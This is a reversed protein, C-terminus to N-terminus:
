LASRVSGGDVLITTGTMYSARESALFAVVDGIESPDAMRRLPIGAAINAIEEEVSVGHLEARTEFLEQVRQTLTWGPLVSNVTIGDAALENALTKIMGTVGLRLSNSLLLAELSQKVSLSTMAIIRGGDSRRLHPIAARCLNVASMLTLDIASRWAETDIQEFHGSPPGGSNTVLIDLRGLQEVTQHM